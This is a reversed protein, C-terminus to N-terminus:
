IKLKLFSNKFKKNKMIDFDSKKIKSIKEFKIFKM